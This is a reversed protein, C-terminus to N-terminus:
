GSSLGPLKHQTSFYDCAKPRFIAQTYDASAQLDLGFTQMWTSLVRTALEQVIHTARWTKHIRQEVFGTNGFM